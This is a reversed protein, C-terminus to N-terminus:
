IAKLNIWHVWCTYLLFSLLNYALNSVITKWHTFSEKFSAIQHLVLDCLVVGALKSGLSPNLITCNDHHSARGLSIFYVSKTNSWWRVHLQVSKYRLRWHMLVEESIKIEVYQKSLGSAFFMGGFDWLCGVGLGWFLLTQTYSFTSTWHCLFIVLFVM